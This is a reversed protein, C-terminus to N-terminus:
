GRAIRITQVKRRTNPAQREFVIGEIQGAPVCRRVRLSSTQQPPHLRAKKAVGYCYSAAVEALTAAPYAPYYAHTNPSPRFCIGSLRSESPRDCGGFEAFSEEHLLLLAKKSIWRPEASV